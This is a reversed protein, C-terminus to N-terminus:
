RSVRIELYGATMVNHREEGTEPDRECIVDVGGPIRIIAFTCPDGSTPSWAGVPEYGSAALDRRLGEVTGLAEIGGRRGVASSEWREGDAARRRIWRLLGDGTPDDGAPEAVGCGDEGITAFFLDDDRGIDDTM